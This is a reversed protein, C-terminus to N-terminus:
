AAPHPLAAEWLASLARTAERDRFASTGGSESTSRAGILNGFALARDIPWGRIWAHLFGANFSDGAGVADIVKIAEAPSHWEGDLSYASAGRAGRKIVLLPVM